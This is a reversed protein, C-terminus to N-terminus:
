PVFGYLNVAFSDDRGLPFRLYKGAMIYSDTAEREGLFLATM